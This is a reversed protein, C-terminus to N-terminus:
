SGPGASSSSKGLLGPRRTAAALQRRNANLREVETLYEPRELHELTPVGSILGILQSTRYLAIRDSLAMAETAGIANLVWGVSLLGGVVAVGAVAGHASGSLM